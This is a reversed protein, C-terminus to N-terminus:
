LSLLLSALFTLLIVSPKARGLLLDPRPLGDRTTWMRLMGLSAVSVSMTWRPM